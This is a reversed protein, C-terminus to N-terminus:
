TMIDLCHTSQVLVNDRITFFLLEPIHKKIRSEIKSPQMIEWIIPRIVFELSM